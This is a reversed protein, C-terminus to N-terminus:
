GVDILNEAKLAAVIVRQTHTDDSLPGIISDQLAAERTVGDALSSAALLLLRTSAGEGVSDRCHNRTVRGVRVLFDADAGSVHTRNCLLQKEKEPPLYDFRVFRCRQRFATPL